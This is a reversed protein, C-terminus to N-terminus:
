IPTRPVARSVAFHSGHTRAVPQIPVVVLQEAAAGHPGWALIQGGPGVALSNGICRRGAWPGSTLQGVYSVGVVYLDHARALEAYPEVWERGYPTRGNDHDAPVAWACPSLILQAGMRALSRGLDLSCAFNDACINLGVCGLHTHAVGLRDGIAYWDHPTGFRLENVKRHTLLLRGDPGILVAANYFRDGARETLGAAV